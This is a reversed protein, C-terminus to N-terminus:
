LPWHGDLWIDTDANKNNVGNINGTESNQWILAASWPSTDGLTSNYRAAWLHWNTLKSLSEGFQGRLWGLSGYIIIQNDKSGTKFKFASILKLLYQIGEEGTLSGWGQEIDFAAYEHDQLKGITDAFFIGQLKPDIGDCHCFHYWGRIPFTARIRPQRNAFTPDKVLGESAKEFWFDIGSKKALHMDVEPNGDYHSADIGKHQTYPM